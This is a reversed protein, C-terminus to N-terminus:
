IDSKENSPEKAALKKIRIAKEIDAKQQKKDAGGCLLIFVEFGKKFYYIRMGKDYNVKLEYIGYRLYKSELNSGQKLKSLSCAVANRVEKTQKEFWERFITLQKVSVM